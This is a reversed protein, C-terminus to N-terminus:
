LRSNPFHPKPREISRYKPLPNLLWMGQLAERVPQLSGPGPNVVGGVHRSFMSGRVGLGLNPLPGLRFGLGWVRFGAFM